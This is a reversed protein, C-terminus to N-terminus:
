RQRRMAQRFTAEQRRALRGALREGVQARAGDIAVMGLLLGDRWLVAQAGEGNLGPGALLVGESALQERHMIRNVEVGNASRAVLKHAARFMARAAASTPAYYAESDLIVKGDRNRFESFAAKVLQGSRVDGVYLWPEQRPSSQDYLDQDIAPGSQVFRHPLQRLRLTLKRLDARSSPQTAAAGSACGILALCTFLAPISRSPPM